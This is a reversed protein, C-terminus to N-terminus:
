VKLYVLNEGSIVMEFDRDLMAKQFNRSTGAGPMMWDHPEIIVVEATDLWGLDGQFLDAEFGEIDVKVLFLADAEDRRALIEPITVVAITGAEDRATQVAWAEAKPDVLSVRGSRSGIAAEIVEINPRTAANMRLVTANAADPEVAVIRAQPFTKCFWVSAAGVNAGADVIVPQRGRALLRRYAALPREYHKLWSFDYAGHRFVDIFTEADSAEPRFTVKGARRITATHYRRGAVRSVHRLPFAPGLTACDLINRALAALASM